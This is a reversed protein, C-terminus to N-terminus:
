RNLDPNCLVNGVECSKVGKKVVLFPPRPYAQHEHTFDQLPMMKLM